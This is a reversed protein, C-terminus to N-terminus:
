YWKEVELLIDELMSGTARLDLPSPLVLLAVEPCCGQAPGGLHVDRSQPDGVGGSAVQISYFSLSHQPCIVCTTPTIWAAHSISAGSGSGTGTGAGAPLQCVELM